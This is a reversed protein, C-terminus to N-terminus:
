PELNWFARWLNSKASDDESPLNRLVAELDRAIRWGSNEDFPAPEGSENYIMKAVDEAMSLISLELESHAKNTLALRRLSDFCDRANGWKTSDGAIDVLRRM